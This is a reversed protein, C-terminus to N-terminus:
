CVYTLLPKQVSKVKLSGANRNIKNLTQFVYINNRKETPRFCCPISDSLFPIIFMVLPLLHINQEYLVIM